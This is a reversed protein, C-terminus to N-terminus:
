QPPVLTIDTKSIPEGNHRFRAKFTSTNTGAPVHSPDILLETTVAAEGSPMNTLSMDGPTVIWGGTLQNTDLNVDWGDAGGKSEYIPLTLTLAGMINKAAAFNHTTSANPINTVSLGRTEEVTLIPPEVIVPLSGSTVLNAQNTIVFDIATQLAEIQLANTKALVSYIYNQHSSDVAKATVNTAPIVDVNKPNFGFQYDFNSGPSSVAFPIDVSRVGPLIKITRIQNTHIVPEERDCNVDYTTLLADLVGSTDAGNQTEFSKVLKCVTARAATLRASNTGAGEIVSKILKAFSALDAKRYQDKLSARRLLEANDEPVGENLSRDTLTAADLAGGRVAVGQDILTAEVSVDDNDVTVIYAPSSVNLENVFNYIPGRPFFIYRDVSDNPPIVVVTDLGMEGLNKIHKNLDELIIKGLQPVFISSFVSVGAAFGRSGITSVGGLVAAIGQLVEITQTRPNSEYSFMLANLVSQFTMPRFSERWLYGNITAALQVDPDPSYALQRSEPNVAFGEFGSPRASPSLRRDLEARWALYNSGGLLKSNSTELGASSKWDEIAGSFKSNIQGVIQIANIRDDTKAIM